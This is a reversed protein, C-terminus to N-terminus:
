QGFTLFVSESFARHEALECCDTLDVDWVREIKELADSAEQLTDFKMTPHGIILMFYEATKPNQDLRVHLKRMTSVKRFYNTNDILSSAVVTGFYHSTM